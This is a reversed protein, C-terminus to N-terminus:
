PGEEIEEVLIKLYRVAATLDSIDGNTDVDLCVDFAAIVRKAAALLNCDRFIRKSCRKTESM